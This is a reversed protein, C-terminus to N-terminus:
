PIKWIGKLNGVLAVSFNGELKDGFTLWLMGKGFVRISRSSLLRGWKKNGLPNKPHVVSCVLVPFKRLCLLMFWPCSLPDSWMVASICVLSPFSRVGHSQGVRFFVINHVPIRRDLAAIVLIQRPELAMGSWLSRVTLTAAFVM